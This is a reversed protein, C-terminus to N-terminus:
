RELRRNWELKGFPTMWAADKALTVETAALRHWIALRSGGALAGNSVRRSLRGHQARGARDIKPNIM